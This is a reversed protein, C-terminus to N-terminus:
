ERSFRAIDRAIFRTHLNYVFMAAAPFKFIGPGEEIQTSLTADLLFFHSIQMEFVILVINLPCLAPRSLFFFSKQYAFPPLHLRSGRVFLAVIAIPLDCNKRTSLETCKSETLKTFFFLLWCVNKFLECSSFFFIFLINPRSDHMYVAEHLIHVLAFRAMFTFM